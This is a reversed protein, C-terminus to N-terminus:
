YLRGEHFDTYYGSFDSSSIRGLQPKIKSNEANHFCVEHFEAEQGSSASSALVFKFLRCTAWLGDVHRECITLVGGLKLECM